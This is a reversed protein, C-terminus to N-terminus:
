IALYSDSPKGTSLSEDISPQAGSSSENCGKNHNAWRANAARIASARKAASKVLGGKRGLLAAAIKIDDSVLEVIEWDSPM